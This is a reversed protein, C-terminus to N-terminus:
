SKGYKNMFYGIGQGQGQQQAKGKDLTNGLMRAADPLTSGAPIVMGNELQLDDKLRGIGGNQEVWLAKMSQQAAIKGNIRGIEKLWSQLERPNADPSPVGRQMFKMDADSIAGSGPKNNRVADALFSEYENRTSAWETGLTSNWSGLARDLMDSPATQVKALLQQARDAIGQTRMSESQAEEQLKMAGPSLQPGQQQKMLLEKRKLDLEGRSLGLKELEIDSLKAQNEIDALQKKIQMRDMALKSEALPGAYRADTASKSAEAEAKQLFAKTGMLKQFDDPSGNAMAFAISQKAITPNQNVLSVLQDVKRAEDERGANKLGEAVTKFHSVALDPRNNELMTLATGYVRAGEKKEADTMAAHVDKFNKAMDPYKMAVESLKRIDGSDFADGVAKDYEARLLAQQQAAQQQALQQQGAQQLQAIAMPNVSGIDYNIPDM